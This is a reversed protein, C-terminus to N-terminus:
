ASCNQVLVQILILRQISSDLLFKWPEQSLPRYAPDEVIHARNEPDQFVLPLPKQQQKTM